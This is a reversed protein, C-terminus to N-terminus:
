IRIGLITIDDIQYESGKHLHLAEMVAEKQTNLDSKYYQGLLELFSIKGFKKRNPSQLDFLGDTTLYIMEGKRLVLSHGEFPKPAKERIRRKGGLGRVTGKIHQMGNEGDSYFLPRKAGAFDVKCQQNSLYEITCVCIDMGDNNSTEDQMLAARLAIDIENLISVPNTIGKEKVAEILLRNGIMSMFAGPVGHGTCDVVAFVSKKDFEFHDFWYFDGSVIDKPQFIIFSEFHKDINSKIPLIAQQITQAYRISDIIKKNKNAIELNNRELIINTRKKDRFSKYVVLSIVIFFILASGAFLLMTNKQKIELQQFEIQDKAEKIQQEARFIANERDQLALSDEHTKANLKDIQLQLKASEVVKEDVLVMTRLYELSDKKSLEKKAKLEDLTKQYKRIDERELFSKEEVALKKLDDKIDSNAKIVNNKGSNQDLSLTKVENSVSEYQLQAIRLILNAKSEALLIISDKKLKLREYEAQLKLKDAEPQVNIINETENELVKTKDEIVKEIDDKVRVLDNSALQDQIISGKSDFSFTAVADSMGPGEKSKNTSSLSFIIVKSKSSGSSSEKTVTSIVVKQPDFGKKKFQLLYVKQFKLNIWFKGLNDTSLQSVVENGDYVTVVAGVIIKKDILLQGRLNLNDQSILFEHCVLSFILLLLLKTCNVKRM